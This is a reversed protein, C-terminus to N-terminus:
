DSAIYTYSTNAAPDLVTHKITGSINAILNKGNGTFAKFDLRRLNVQYQNSNQTFKVEWIKDITFPEDYIAMGEWRLTFTNGSTLSGVFRYLGDFGPASSDASCVAMGPGISSSWSEAPFTPNGFTFYSNSSVKITNYSTGFWIVNFPLTILVSAEDQWSTPGGSISTYASSGLDTPSSITSFGGTPAPPTGEPVSNGPTSGYMYPNTIFSSM